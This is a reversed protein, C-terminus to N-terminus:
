HDLGEREMQKAVCVHARLRDRGGFCLKCFPCQNVNFTTVDPNEYAHVTAYHHALANAVGFQLDCAPCQYMDDANIYPKHHPEVPEPPVYIPLPEGMKWDDLARQRGKSLKYNPFAGYTIKRWLRRDQAVRFWDVESIQAKQLVTKFWWPQAVGMGRM